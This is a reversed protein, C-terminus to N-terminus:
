RECLQRQGGPVHLVARTGGKGYLCRCVAAIGLRVGRCTVLPLCGRTVRPALWHLAVDRGLTGGGGKRQERLVASYTERQKHEATPGAKM